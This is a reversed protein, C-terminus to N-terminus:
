KVTVNGRKSWAKLINETNGGVQGIKYGQTKVEYSSDSCSCKTMGTDSRLEFAFSDTNGVYLKINGNDSGVELLSFGTIEGYINGSHAQLQALLAFSKIMKLNGSHLQMKVKKFHSDDFTINGSKFTFDAEEAILQQVKVNGSKAEFDLKETILNELKANGSTLKMQLQSFESDTMTLNGSRCDFALEAIRLQYIKLNGTMAQVSLKGQFNEPLLLLMKARFPRPLGFLKPRQGSEIKLEAGNEITNAFFAPNQTNMYEKLHIKGDKATSIELEDTQNNLSIQSFDASKFIVENALSLQTNGQRLSEKALNTQNKEQAMEDLVERLDGMEFFAQESAEQDSLGDSKHAQTADLLNGYVEQYLDKTEATEEYNQFVADLKQKLLEEM